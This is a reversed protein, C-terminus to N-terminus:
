PYEIDASCPVPVDELNLNVPVPSTAPVSSIVNAPASPSDTSLVSALVNVNLCPEALPPPYESLSALSAAAAMKM